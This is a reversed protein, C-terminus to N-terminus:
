SDDRGRRKIEKWGLDLLNEAPCGLTILRWQVALKGNREPELTPSAKRGPQIRSLPRFCRSQAEERRLDRKRWHGASLMQAPLQFSGGQSGRWLRLGPRM